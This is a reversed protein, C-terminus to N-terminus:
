YYLFPEYLRLYCQSRLYGKVFKKYVSKSKCIKITVPLANWERTGNCHFNHNAISHVSKSMFNNESHRTNYLRNLPVFQSCLYSPATGNAVNFMHNLMLQKARDAVCLIGIRDLEEQGIHARHHLNLVFRAIKNQATQLKRKLQKNLASYWATSAYDFHCQILASTVLKKAKFNLVDRYRHLFKLRANCKTIISDVIKDGSITSDIKLGLYKVM